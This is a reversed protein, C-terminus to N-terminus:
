CQLPLIATVRVPLFYDQANVIVTEYGEKNNECIKKRSVFVSKSDGMAITKSKNIERDM